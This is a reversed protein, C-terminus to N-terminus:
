RWRLELSWACTTYVDFRADVRRTTYFSGSGSYRTQDVLSEAGGGYHEFLVGFYCSYDDESAYSYYIDAGKPLHYYDTTYSDDGSLQIRYGGDKIHISRKATTFSHTGTWTKVQYPVSKTTTFGKFDVYDSTFKDGVQYADSYGNDEPDQVNVTQGPFWYNTCHAWTIEGDGDVATVVCRSGEPEGGPHWTTVRRTKTVYKYSRYTVKAQVRYTGARLHVHGGSSVRKSGSWATITTKTVTKYVGAAVHVTPKINIAGHNYVTKAAPTTVTIGASSSPAAEAQTSVAMTVALAATTLAALKQLM